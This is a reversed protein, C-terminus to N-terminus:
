SSLMDMMIILSSDSNAGSLKGNKKFRHSADSDMTTKGSYCLLAESNVINVIEPDCTVSIWRGGEKSM